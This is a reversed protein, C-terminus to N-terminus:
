FCIFTQPIQPQITQLVAKLSEVDLGDPVRGHSLSDNFDAEFQTKFWREGSCLKCTGIVWKTNTPIIWHHKCDEAPVIMNDVTEYVREAKVVAKSSKKATGKKPKSQKALKDAILPHSLGLSEWFSSKVPKTEVKTSFIIGDWFNSM